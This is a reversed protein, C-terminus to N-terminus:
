DYENKTDGMKKIDEKIEVILEDMGDLDVSSFLEEFYQEYEDQSVDDNLISSDIKMIRNHLIELSACISQINLNHYDNPNKLMDCIVLLLEEEKNKM